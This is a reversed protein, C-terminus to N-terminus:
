DIIWERVGSSYGEPLGVKLRMSKTSVPPFSVDEIGNKRLRCKLGGVIDKWEGSGTSYQLTWYSPIRCEGRGTDDFWVICCRSAEIEAPFDYRIWEETGKHPWFDFNGDKTAGDNIALMGMDHRIFSVTACAMESKCVGAEAMDEVEWVTSIRAEGNMRMFNPIRKGNEMSYVIPGRQRAVRGRCDDVEDVARVTQEPLPLTWEKGVKCYGHSVRPETLYLASEERNPYRAYVEVPADTELRVMGSDPYDTRLSIRYPKGDIRITACRIDMYQNVFLKGESLSFVTDKLALLTRPINGVCCPCAHWSTRRKDSTLPNQYYFSEGDRSIAGLVNNFLVRERVAETKDAGILPRMERSLFELGCSACSEAYARQPLEYDAGFAEGRYRAGVGGTIYYKRDIISTFLRQAANGLEHDGLRNCVAAMGTYFYVARVAHGTADKMEVAPMESQNYPNSIGKQTHQNRIFYQALRAYRPDGTADSLRCLAYELGAHGNMGTRKPRPGFISDLHDACRIAADLLRRDGTARHHAIGMEIFYGMVYFEHDAYKKFHANGNLAHFSHIYGSPEQAALFVPIWAETKKRLFDQAEALERDDGPDIELALSVAEITNYPYADSWPCGKFKRGADKGALVNGAAVLNMLEEGSGGAEMQRICHPLWKTVLLKYERGWFGGVRVNKQIQYESRGAQSDICRDAQAAMAFFSIAACILKKVKM